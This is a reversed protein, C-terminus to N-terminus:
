MKEGLFQPVEKRWICGVEEKKLPVEWGMGIYKKPYRIKQIAM